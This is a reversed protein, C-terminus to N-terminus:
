FKQVAVSDKWKRKNYLLSILISWDLHIYKTRNM